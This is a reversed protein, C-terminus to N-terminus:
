KLFELTKPIEVSEETQADAFIESIVEGRWNENPAYGFMKMITAPTQYNRVLSTINNAKKINPGIVYYPIILNDDNQFGHSHSNKNAGHDTTVIVYTNDYIGESKLKNIIDMIYGNILSVRDIYKDSCFGELHGTEDVSGFYTFIFDFDDEIFKLTKDRSDKDCKDTEVQSDYPSCYEEVDLTGPNFTNGFFLLFDWVLSAKVILDKNNKKIEAYICDIPATLGSKPTIPAFKRSLYPIEWQNNTIGTDETDQGCLINSWGPGSMAQIATRANMTYSGNAKLYDFADTKAKDICYKFLGDVGILVVRTKKADKNSSESTIVSSIFLAFLLFLCKTHIRM